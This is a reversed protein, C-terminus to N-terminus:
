LKHAKQRSTKSPGRGTIGINEDQVPQQTYSTSFPVMAVVDPAARCESFVGDSAPALPETALLPYLSIFGQKQQATTAKTIVFDYNLVADLPPISPLGSVHHCAHNDCSLVPLQLAM